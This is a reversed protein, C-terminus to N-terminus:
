SLAKEVVFTKAASAAFKSTLYLLPTVAALILRHRPPLDFFPGSSVFAAIGGLFFISIYGVLDDGIASGIMCSIMTVAIYGGMGWDTEYGEHRAILSVLSLCLTSYLALLILGELNGRGLALLELALHDMSIMLKCSEVM